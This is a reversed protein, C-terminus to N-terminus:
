IDVCVGVVPGDATGVVAAGMSDGGDFFLVCVRVDMGVDIGVDMGVFPISPGVLTADKAASVLFQTVLM